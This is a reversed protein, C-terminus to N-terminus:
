SAIRIYKLGFSSPYCIGDNQMKLILDNHNKLFINFTDNCKDKNAYELSVDSNMLLFSSYLDRQVCNGDVWTHRMSLRKKIYADSVHNYQSARFTKTKVKHLEIGEYGLKREIISILKAPAHNKISNGFRGKRNAKGSKSYTTEKTRHQLGRFSMSEVYIDDGHSIIENALAEHGDKLSAAQKRELSRKKAALFKYHNSIFWHLKVGQKVTGDPNYNGPNTAHRSRDLARQIRNLEKSYNKVNTGLEKLIVGDPHSVAVTSTGIDIGVRGTGIHANQKSPPEGDFIFQVYYHWRSGVQMRKIRNYCLKHNMCAKTYEYEKFAPSGSIGHKPMQVQISLKNWEICGDKYRIGSANSKGEMSLFDNHKHFHLRKGNGYLVKEVSQWVQSAIKQATCSDIHKKYRHQQIKIFSHFQYESLGYSTRIVKLENNIRAIEKKSADAVKLKQRESLLEQYVPDRKMLRLQKSAHATIVNSIKYGYYFRKNLVAEDYKTTNLKLTLAFSM